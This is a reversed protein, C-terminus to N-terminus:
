FPRCVVSEQLTEYVPLGDVGITLRATATLRYGGDPGTLITTRHASGYHDGVDVNLLHDVGNAEDVVQYTSGTADAVFTGTILLNYSVHETTIVNRLVRDASIWGSGIGCASFQTQLELHDRTVQVAASVATTTVGLMAGVALTLALAARRGHRPMM